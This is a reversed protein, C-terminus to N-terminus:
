PVLPIVDFQVSVGPIPVSILRQFYCVTEEISLSLKGCSVVRCPYVVIKLPTQRSLTPRSVQLLEIGRTAYCLCHTLTCVSVIGYYTKKNKFFSRHDRVKKCARYWIQVVCLMHYATMNLSARVTSTINNVVAATVLEPSIPCGLGILGLNTVAAMRVLEHPSSGINEIYNDRTEVISPLM